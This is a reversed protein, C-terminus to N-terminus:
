GQRSYRAEMFVTWQQGDQSNEIRFRYAAEEFDYVYRSHGMPTQHSFVLRDGDWTGLAPGGVPSGLSDFWHMTYCQQKEDWGYVGHGRYTVRGDREQVYDSVLFFGELDIRAAIRGDGSGAEGWPSAHMTEEGIWNGALTALREHHENPRPMNM